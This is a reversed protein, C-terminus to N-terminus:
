FFKVENRIESLVNQLRKKSNLPSSKKENQIRVINKFVEIETRVSRPKRTTGYELPSSYRVPTYGVRYGLLLARACFDHDDFGQFFAKSNLAGIQMYKTRDFIVPGRMITEGLYLKNQGLTEDSLYDTAKNGLRGAEGKRTFEQDSVEEHVNFTPTIMNCDKVRASKILRKLFYRTQVSIREAIYGVLSTNHARDTGLTKCYQETIPMLQEVGRGSIAVLCNDSQLAKILRKEFGKDDLLMDAQIELIYKSNTENFGFSDCYTEFKPRLNRYMRVIRLHPYSRFLHELNFLAQSTDDTSADDILILEFDSTISKLLRLIVDQIVSEQNYVPMVVSIEFSKSYDIARYEFVLNPYRTEKFFKM